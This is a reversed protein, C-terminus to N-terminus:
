RRVAAASSSCACTPWGAAHFTRWIVDTCIGEPPYGGACCPAVCEPRTRIYPRVACWTLDDLGNRDISSHVTKIGFRLRVHIERGYRLALFTGLALLGIFLLCASRAHRKRRKDSM